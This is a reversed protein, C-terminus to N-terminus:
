RDVYDYLSGEYNLEEAIRKLIYKDKAHLTIDFMKGGYICGDAFWLGLIYAM